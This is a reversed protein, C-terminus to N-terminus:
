GTDPLRSEEKRYECLLVVLSYKTEVPLVETIQINNFLNISYGTKASLALQNPLSAAKRPYAAMRIDPM